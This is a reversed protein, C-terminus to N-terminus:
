ESSAQKSSQSVHDSSHYLWTCGSWLWCSDPWEGSGQTGPVVTSLCPCDCGALIRLLRCHCFLFNISLLDLKNFDIWFNFFLCILFDALRHHTDYLPPQTATNKLLTTSGFKFSLCDSIPLVCHHSLPMTRLCQQAVRHPPHAGSVQDCVM